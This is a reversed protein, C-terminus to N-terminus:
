VTHYDIASATFVLMPVISLIMVASLLISIMKKM